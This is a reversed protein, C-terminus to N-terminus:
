ANLYHAQYTGDPLYGLKRALRCSELNAADWHAEQGNELCVKVLHSSLLTGLGRERHKPMVYLSVEIGRSCVLQSYAAGVIMEDVAAYFGLGRQEFDEPSDFYALDVFHEQGWLSAAFKADMRRVAYKSSAHCLTELHELSLRDASFSYRDFPVVQEGYRQQIAELWGPASPMLLVESTITELAATVGPGAVAGALYVFPGSQIKFVTPQEVNDVFAAGMQGEVVCVISLDVRPVQCFARALKIRNAKTLPYDHMM